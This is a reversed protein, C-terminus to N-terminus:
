EEDIGLLSRMKVQMDVKGAQFASEYQREFIRTIKDFFDKNNNISNFSWRVLEEILVKDSPYKDISGNLYQRINNYINSENYIFLEFMGKDNFDLKINYFMVSQFRPTGVRCHVIYGHWGDSVVQRIHM